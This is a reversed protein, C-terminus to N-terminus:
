SNIEIIKVLYEPGLNQLYSFVLGWKKQEGFVLIQNSAIFMNVIVCFKITGFFSAITSFKADLNGKVWHWIGLNRRGILSRGSSKNWILIRRMFCCNGGFPAVTSLLDIPFFLFFLQGQLDNDLWKSQRTRIQSAWWWTCANSAARQLM